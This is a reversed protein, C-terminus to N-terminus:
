LMVRFHMNVVSYGLKILEKNNHAGNGHNETQFATKMVTFWTSAAWSSMEGFVTGM